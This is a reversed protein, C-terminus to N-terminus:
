TNFLAGVGMYAAGKSTEDVYIHFASDTPMRLFGSKKM